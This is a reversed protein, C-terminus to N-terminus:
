EHNETFWTEFYFADLTLNIPNSKPSMKSRRANTLDNGEDFVNKLLDNYYNQLQTMYMWKRQHTQIYRHTHKHEKTCGLRDRKLVDRFFNALFSYKSM